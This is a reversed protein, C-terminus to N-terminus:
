HFPSIFVKTNQEIQFTLFTHSSVLLEQNKLIGKIVGGKFNNKNPLAFLWKQETNHSLHQPVPKLKVKKIQQIIPIDKAQAQIYPGGDFPDVEDVFRFNQKELLALARQSFLGPKGITKQVEEPLSSLKIEGKPNTPM